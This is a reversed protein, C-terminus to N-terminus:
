SEANRDVPKKSLEDWWEEIQIAESVMDRISDNHYDVALESLLKTIKNQMPGINTIHRYDPLRMQIMRLKATHETLQLLHYGMEVKEATEPVQHYESIPGTTYKSLFERQKELEYQILGTEHVEIEPEAFDATLMKAIANRSKVKGRFGFDAPKLGLENLLGVVAQNCNRGFRDGFLEILKEMARKKFRAASGRRLQLSMERIQIIAKHMQEKTNETADERIGWRAARFEGINRVLPNESGLFIEPPDLSPYTIEYVFPRTSWGSHSKKTIHEISNESTIDIWAVEVPNPSGPVSLVVDPRSSGHNLQLSVVLGSEIMGLTRTALTEVAYGFRAHLFAQFERDRPDSFFYKAAM